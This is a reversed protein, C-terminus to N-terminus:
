EVFEALFARLAEPHPTGVEDRQTSDTEFTMEVGKCYGGGSSNTGVFDDGVLETTEVLEGTAAEYVRVEYAGEYLDIVQNPTIGDSSDTDEYVCHELQPGREKEDVCAILQVEEVATPRWAGVDDLVTQGSAYDIFIPHPGSASVAAAEPFERPSACMTRYGDMEFSDRPFLLYAVAGVGFVLVVAVVGVVWRRAM